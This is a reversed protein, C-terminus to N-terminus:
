PIVIFSQNNSARNRADKDSLKVSAIKVLIAKLRPCGSSLGKMRCRISFNPKSLANINFIIAINDTSMIKTPIPHNEFIIPKDAIM